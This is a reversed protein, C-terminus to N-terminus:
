AERRDQPRQKIRVGRWQPCQRALIAVQEDGGGVTMHEGEVIDRAQPCPDGVREAAQRGAASERHALEVRILVLHQEVSGPWDDQITDLVDHLPGVEGVAGDEQRKLRDGLLATARLRLEPSAKRLQRIQHIM